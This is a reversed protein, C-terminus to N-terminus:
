LLFVKNIKDFQLKCKRILVKASLKIFEKQSIISLIQYHVQWLHQGILMKKQLFCNYIRMVMNILKKNKKEIPVSFTKYKRWSM